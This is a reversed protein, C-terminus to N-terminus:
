VYCSELYEVKISKFLMLKQLANIEAIFFELLKEVMVHKNELLFLIQSFTYM